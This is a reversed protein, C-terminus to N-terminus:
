NDFKELDLRNSLLSYRYSTKNNNIAIRIAKNNGVLVSLREARTIGTYILNRQLMIYHQTLVPMVIAPFESGQSKHVSIAYALVLEDAESFDYLVERAGDLLVTIAQLIRNIQTIKGIDGNFVDKDYNNRVQMVKDGTRFLKGFLKQEVKSSNPPNITNQLRLNLGDVGAEGRYMPSLVQIDDVPRFGFTSPIRQTVLDVIWDAATKADDAPFLFFDGAQDQSFQPIRGNNIRHANDVIASDHSQRHIIKLQSVKIKGSDIIDRLVDGAGVSPLQDVDGVFLVQTGLKIAKFLHYALLLDLMSAEDIVLFDIKLPHYDHYNFGGQPSYGLLRHITSASRGTAESLRKAARGTPSTLAYRVNKEELIQILAKLCTTKGTGPGGTIVSVPNLLAAEIAKKQEDSLQNDKIFLPAQWPSIPYNNLARLKQALGCESFYFPTLYVISNNIDLDDQTFDKSEIKEFEEPFIDKTVRDIAVLREIALKVMTQDCSLLDIARDLLEGEPIFVHGEDTTESLVYIIGAEIRSPHDVPLGLNKAIGDATRFGVGYIDQELQYPNNKVVELSDEGYTRYIKVALNISVRHEQLFLMIDKVQRQEEWAQIIKDTRDPGIGPVERLKQPNEDIIDLTEEGFHRVIRKALQPGIGNVLGSGLYREIGALSYPKLKEFSSASFQLGHKPHTIFDGQFSVSEGPSIEPLNGVVTILGELNVGPLDKASDKGPRLRLVTYGSEQSYFTIREVLGHIKM